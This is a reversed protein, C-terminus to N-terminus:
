QSSTTTGASGLVEVFAEDRLRRQWNEVERVYKQQRLVQTAENRVRSNGGSGKRRELVELIHWGFQTRFPDSIRGDPLERAIAEMRNPMQGGSLWPLEGGNDKSDPDESIEQALETFSEGSIIRERTAALVRRAEQTTDSPDTPIFIQRIRLDDSPEIDDTEEIDSVLIVHYGNESELPDSLEGRKLQPLATTIFTPLEDLERWGLDGGNASRPGDSIERALQGFTEGDNIRTIAEQARQQAIQRQAEPANSPAAILIHQLRYRVVEPESLKRSDIYEDIENETVTISREVERQILRQLLLEHEISARYYAFNFGQNQLQERFEFTNLNNEAAVREIARNVSSADVVIGAAAARQKQIERDILKEVIRNRTEQDSPLSERNVRASNSLFLTEKAIDSQLVIGDNVIVAIEDLVVDQAQVQFTACLLLGSALVGKLARLYSSSCRRPLYELQNRTHTQCMSLLRIPTM